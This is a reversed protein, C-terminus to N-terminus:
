SAAPLMTDPKKAMVTRSVMAGTMAGSVSRKASAVPGVPAVTAKAPLAESVTLPDTGTVNLGADPLVNASPGVTTMAEAMSPAPLLAVRRKVTVTRSVVGGTSVRGALRVARALLAPPAVTVKVGVAVSATLAGTTMVEGSEPLTKATPVVVTLTVALSAAPLM